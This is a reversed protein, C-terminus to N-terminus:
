MKELRTIWTLIDEAIQPHGSEFLVDHYFDPYEQCFKPTSAPISEYARRMTQPDCIVDKGPVVVMTPMTLRKVSKMAQACLTRIGLLLGRSVKLPLQAQLVPDELLLPNSTLEPLGYPIQTMGKGGKFLFALINRVTYGLSFAQAHPKYAPALLVLRQYREPHAAALLTAMVGGLSIGCLTLDQIEGNKLKEALVQQHFAELDPIAFRTHSLVEEDDAYTNLGFSRLDPGYIVSYHPLLCELFGLAGKVSGGLGPVFLLARGSTNKPNRYVGYRLARGDVGKYTELELRAAISAVSTM